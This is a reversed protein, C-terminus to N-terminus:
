GQTSERLGGTGKKGELPWFYINAPPVQFNTANGAGRIGQEGWQLIRAVEGIYRSKEPRIKNGHMHMVGKVRYKKAAIL